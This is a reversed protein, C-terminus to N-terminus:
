AYRAALNPFLRVLDDEDWEEGSPGSGERSLYPLEGGGTVAEYAAQSAYNLSENDIEDDDAMMEGTSDPDKIMAEYTAQGKGIIYAKFYHFSDDSMGGAVLFGAGWVDWRHLLNHKTWYLNHFSEIDEAPLAKLAAEVADADGRAKQILDWFASEQM